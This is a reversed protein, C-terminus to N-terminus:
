ISRELILERYFDLVDRSVLDWDYKQVSKLGNAGFQKRLKESNSKVDIIM